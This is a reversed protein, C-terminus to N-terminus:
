RVPKVSPLHRLHAEIAKMYQDYFTRVEPDILQWRNSPRGKLLAVQAFIRRLDSEVTTDWRRTSGDSAGTLLNGDSEWFMCSIGGVHAGMDIVHEFECSNLGGSNDLLRVMGTGSGLALRRGDRRWALKTGPLGTDQCKVFKRQQVDVYGLEGIATTAWMQQTVPQITISSFILEESVGRDSKRLQHGVRGPAQWLILKGSETLAATTINERILEADRSNSQVSVALERAPYEGDLQGPLVFSMLKVSGGFRYLADTISARKTFESRKLIRLDGSSSATAIWNGDTSIGVATVAFQHTPRSVLSKRDRVVVHDELVVYGGAGGYVVVDGSADVASRQVAGRLRTDEPYVDIFKSSQNVIIPKNGRKSSSFALLIPSHGPMDSLQMSRAVLQETPGLVSFPFENFDGIFQRLNHMFQQLGIRPGTADPVYAREPIATLEELEQRKLALRRESKRLREVEDNRQQLEANRKELEGALKQNEAVQKRLENNVQATKDREEKVNRIAVDRKKQERKIDQNSKELASNKEATRQKEAVLEDNLTRLKRNHDEVEKVHRAQRRQEQRRRDEEDAQEHLKRSREAYAIFLWSLSAMLALVWGVTRLRSATQSHRLYRETASFDNRNRSLDPEWQGQYRIAWAASPRVEGWWQGARSLAAGSLLDGRRRDYANARGALMRFEDADRGERETWEKLRTWTRLLAEHSIDIQEAGSRLDDGTNIGSVIFTRGERESRFQNIVHLVQEKTADSAATLDRLLAPRRVLRGKADLEGLQRFIREATIQSSKSLGAYISELHDNLNWALLIGAKESGGRVDAATLRVPGGHSRELAQAWTRRLAHQLLPLGDQQAWETENLLQQLLDNDIQAGFLELPGRIAASLSSRSMKPLLFVSKNVAEALSYFLACDGVYESRLTLIVYINQRGEIPETASLLLKVFLAAEDEVRRDGQSSRYHRFLEEFQDIFVLVRHGRELHAERVLNILGFCDSQLRELISGGSEAIPGMEDLEQALNLIPSAGPRTEVVHWISTTGVGTLKPIIGAKVLSSKGCGSEGLVVVFRNTGLLGIVSRIQEDQGFFSEHEMAAFPRMGPFPQTLSTKLTTM